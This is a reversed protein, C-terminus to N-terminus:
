CTMFDEGKEEEDILFFQSWFEVCLTPVRYCQRSSLWSISHRLEIKTSQVFIKATQMSFEVVGPLELAVAGKQM